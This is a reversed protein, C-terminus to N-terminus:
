APVRSRDGREHLLDIAIHIRAQPRGGRALQERVQDREFAFTADGRRREIRREVVFSRASSSGSKLTM